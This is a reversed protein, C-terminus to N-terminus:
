QKLYKPIIDYDGVLNQKLGYDGVLHKLYKPIIDYDGVLNQRRIM